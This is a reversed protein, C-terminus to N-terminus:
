SSDDDTPLRQLRNMLYTMTLQEGPRRCDDTDVNWSGRARTRRPLQRADTHLVVENTTYDFGGLASREAADADSLLALAEDAHTALIIADFRERRGSETTVDGRRM